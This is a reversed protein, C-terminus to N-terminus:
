PIRGAAKEARYWACFRDIGDAIPTSCRYGLEREALSVDAYTVPVDGAQDPLRELRAPLGLARELHQVLETLTTTASGGLNYIAYGQTRGMAAVVGSVIDEVYTYDRRSSGDGFFPIAQGDTIRRAFQHIAMEPRQRPGYVTFFRLCTTANGRLHHWTYCQVEGAKKSAAYPSIPRDVRDSEAFPVKTNGGYVSSSSGFVFRVGPDEIAQLLTQTGVLNVDWYRIPDAISPRVGALAALHVVTGAGAVAERCAGADRLDGEVFRFRAGGAAALEEVNRRKLAVDYFPDLNDLVTVQWGDGLLKQSLHSGIFGAGGTILATPM